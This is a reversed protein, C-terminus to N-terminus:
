EKIERAILHPFRKLEMEHKMDMLMSKLSYCVEYNLDRKAKGIDYLYTAPMDPKDPRYIIESRRGPSCFVERVTEAEDELTTIAGSTINYLGQAKHSDIAKIIAGAVDKVYVVDQGKRPNGWIEIPKGKVANRIFVTLKPITINGGAYYETHPGYGYVAAFRFSIGTVHHAQHYHEVLNVAAIKSITYVAHSSSYIISPRDDETISRGCSWLGAVDKHSHGYIMKKASAIRCYELVNLTGTINIDVYPQPLCEKDNNPMMSALLVVAEVGKKPLREFDQKRRVDVQAYDINRDEYYEPNLNNHGTAFIDRGQSLLEEILYTGIFSSAGIVVIM